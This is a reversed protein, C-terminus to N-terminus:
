TSIQSWPRGGSLRVLQLTSCRPGVDQGCGCSVFSQLFNKLAIRCASQCPPDAPVALRSNNKLLFMKSCKDLFDQSRSPPDRQLGLLLQKGKISNGVGEAQRSFVVCLPCPSLIKCQVPSKFCAGEGAGARGGAQEGKILFNKGRLNPLLTSGM